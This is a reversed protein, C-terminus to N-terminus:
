RAEHPPRSSHMATLLPLLPLLLVPDHRAGRLRSSIYSTDSLTLMGYLTPVLHGHTAAPHAGNNLLPDPLPLTGNM